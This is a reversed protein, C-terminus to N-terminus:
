DNGEFLEITPGADADRSPARSRKLPPTQAPAGESQTITVTAPAVAACGSMLFFIALKKM